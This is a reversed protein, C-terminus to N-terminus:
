LEVCGAVQPHVVDRLALRALKVYEAIALKVAAFIGGDRFQHM